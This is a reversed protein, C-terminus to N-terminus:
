RFHVAQVQGSVRSRVEVRDVAELRGSFEDWTAVDAQVVTAVSVPTAQPGQATGKNSADARFATVGGALVGLAAITAVAVLLKRSRLPTNM